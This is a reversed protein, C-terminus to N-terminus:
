ERYLEQLILDIQDAIMFHGGDPILNIETQPIIRELKRAVDLPVYDDATGHWIKVKLPISKAIQEWDEILFKYDIRIGALGQSLARRLNRMFVIRVDRREMTKKDEPSLILSFWLAAAAPFLRWISGILSVLALGLKPSKLGAQILLKNAGNMNRLDVGNFPAVGSVIAVRSVRDSMRSAAALAYPTGGSVGMISLKSIGLNNLVLEVDEAFTHPTRGDDNDSAGIGPRDIAVISIGLKSAAELGLKSEISSGPFGHFYCIVENLSPDGTVIGGIRRGSTTNFSFDRHM